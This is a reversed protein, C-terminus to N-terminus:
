RFQDIVEPSQVSGVRDSIPVRVDGASQQDKLGLLYRYGRKPAGQEAALFLASPSVQSDDSPSAQGSRAREWEGGAM